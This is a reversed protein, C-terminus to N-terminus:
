GSAQASRATVARERGALDRALGVGVLGARRALAAGALAQHPALEVVVAGGPVLWRAAGSLVAEVDALGPTGDSGDGAVLAQRPERRVEEDLTPWERESVYPPNSVVLDVRGLLRPPLAEYWSGQCLEATAGTRKRNATALEIAAPDLDTAWVEAGPRELAICLAIAGSGTGLDVVVPHPRDGLLGLAVEVVQETEPRPILARQDVTLELNRFAWAGLVYQLPEGSLRREVLEELRDPPALQTLWRAEADSGLRDALSM